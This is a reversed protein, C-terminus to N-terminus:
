NHIMLRDQFWLSFGRRWLPGRPPFRRRFVEPGRGYPFLWELVEREAAQRGSREHDLLRGPRRRLVAGNRDGGRAVAHDEVAPDVGHLRVGVEHALRETRVRADGAVRGEARDVGRREGVAAREHVHGRPDVDLQRELDLLM